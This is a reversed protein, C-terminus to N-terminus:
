IWKLTHSHFLLSNKKETEETHMQSSELNQFLIVAARLLMHLDLQKFDTQINIIVRIFQKSNKDCESM